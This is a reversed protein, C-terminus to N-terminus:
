WLCSGNSDRHSKRAQLVVGGYRWNRGLDSVSVADLGGVTTGVNLCDEGGRLRLKGPQETSM